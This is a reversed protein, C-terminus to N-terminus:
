TRLGRTPNARQIPESIPATLCSISAGLLVRQFARWEDPTFEDHSDSRCHIIAQAMLATLGQESFVVHGEQACFRGLPNMVPADGFIERALKLHGTTDQPSRAVRKLILALTMLTVESPLLAM